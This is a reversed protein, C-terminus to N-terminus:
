SCRGLLVLRDKNVRAEELEAETSGQASPTTELVQVKADLEEWLRKCYRTHNKWGHGFYQTSEASTSMFEAVLTATAHLLDRKSLKKVPTPTSTSDTKASADKGKKRKPKGSKGPAEKEPEPEPNPCSRAFGLNLGSAEPGNEKDEADGITSPRAAAQPAGASQPRMITPMYEGSSTPLSIM